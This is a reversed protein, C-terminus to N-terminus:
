KKKHRAIFEERVNSLQCEVNSKLINHIKRVIEDAKQHGTEFEYHKFDDMKKYYIRFVSRDPKKKDPVIECDAIDTVILSMPKIEKTWFKQSKPQAVPDIEIRTGHIGLSVETYTFWQILVVQYSKYHLSMIEDQATSTKSHLDKDKEGMGVLTFKLTEMSDLSQELDVLKGEEGLKELNFDAINRKLGRKKILKQLVINMKVNRSEVKVVSYGNNPIQIMVEVSSKSIVPQKTAKHKEVIALHSFGFKWMLEDDGLAPFDPDVEGDEEAMHLSYCKVENQFCVKKAKLLYKYLALGIVDAVTASDVFVVSVSHLREEETPLFSLFVEIEKTPCIDGVGEGDFKCYQVYLNNPENLLDELRKSLASVHEAKVGIAANEVPVVDKEQFMEDKDTETITPCNDNWHITECHPEKKGATQKNNRNTKPTRGMMGPSVAIDFSQPYDLYDSGEEPYGPGLRKGRKSPKAQFINGEDQVIVMECMGTDDSTVCSHRLHNIVMQPNDWFTM